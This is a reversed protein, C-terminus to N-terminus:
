NERPYIKLLFICQTKTSTESNTTGNANDLCLVSTLYSMVNYCPTFLFLHMLYNCKTFRAFEVLERLDTMNKM